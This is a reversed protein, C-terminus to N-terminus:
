FPPSDRGGDPPVEKPYPLGIQAHVLSKQGGLSVMRVCVSFYSGNIEKGAVRFSVKIALSFYELLIVVLSISRLFSLPM